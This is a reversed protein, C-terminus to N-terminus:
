LNERGKYPVCVFWLDGIRTYADAHSAVEAPVPMWQGLIKSTIKHGESTVRSSSAHLTELISINDPAIALISEQRTNHRLYDELKDYLKMSSLCVLFSVEQILTGDDYRYAGECVRVKLKNDVISEILDLVKPLTKEFVIQSTQNDLSFMFRRQGPFDTPEGLSKAFDSELISELRQLKPAASM